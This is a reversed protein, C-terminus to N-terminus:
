RLRPRMTFLCQSFGKIRTNGGKHRAGGVRSNGIECAVCVRRLMGWNKKKLLQPTVPKKTGRKKGVPVLGFEQIWGYACGVWRKWLVPGGLFGSVERKRGSGVNCYMNTFLIIGILLMEPGVRLWQLWKKWTSGPIYAVVSCM